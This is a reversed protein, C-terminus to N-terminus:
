VGSRYYNSQRYRHKLWRREPARSLILKKKRRKRIDDVADKTAEVGEKVLRKTGSEVNDVVEGVTTTETIQGEFIGKGVLYIVVILILYFLYKLFTGM